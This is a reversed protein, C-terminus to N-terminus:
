TGLVRQDLACYLPSCALECELEEDTVATMQFRKPGTSFPLEWIDLDTKRSDPDPRGCDWEVFRPEGLRALQEIPVDSGYRIDRSARV